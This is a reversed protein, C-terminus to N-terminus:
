ATREGPVGVLYRIAVRGGREEGIQWSYDPASLGAVLERLDEVSYSRLCSLLGDIWLIAPVVPVVCNWLIREWRVPRAALAAEIGLLPVATVALLTWAHRTAGEFIPLAKGGSSPMPWCRGLRRLISITFPPFSRGFGACLLRCMGLM